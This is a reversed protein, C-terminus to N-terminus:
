GIYRNGKAINEAAWLPQTNKWHLREITEELTPNEYKLPIIHDIHWEGHNEWTMGEKFQLEIHKKFDDISCGLYEISRKSKNAKLSNRVSCSVTASLYGIPDCDKCYSKHRNHECIQSGGCDKCRSKIRNHECIQSGGCDKCTSKIHNHECIQSGGCEKCRSKQINHECIQSGGCDKCQSKQRNHECFSAGGCDKCKSKQRNHECISAGGCDKCISKHRNHECISGGGCEKCNSKVRNHECKHKYRNKKETDRCKLCTKLKRNKDNLFLDLTRWTHCRRCQEHKVEEKTEQNM